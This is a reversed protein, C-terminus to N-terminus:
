GKLKPEKLLNDKSINWERQLTNMLAIKDDQLTDNEYIQHSSVTVDFVKDFVPHKRHQVLVKDEFFIAVTFARHLVGKTHAEWKEIKGIINDNRDVQAIYQKQNFYNMHRNYWKSKRNVKKKFNARSIMLL